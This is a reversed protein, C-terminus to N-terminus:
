GRSAHEVLLRAVRAGREFARLRRKPVDYVRRNLFADPLEPPLAARMFRVAPPVFNRPMEGLLRDAAVRFIHGMSLYDGRFRAYDCLHRYHEFWVGALARPLDEEIHTRVGSMLGGVVAKVDDGSEMQRFASVWPAEVARGAIWADLNGGYYAHFAPILRLVWDPHAVGGADILALQGETVYQYVRAFWVKRDNKLSSALARQADLIGDAAERLPALAPRPYGRSPVVRPTAGRAVEALKRLSRALQAEIVRAALSEGPLFFSFSVEWRLRTGGDVEDLTLTGRHDRTPLGRFVRYVFRHPAESAIIVEDFSRAGAATEITIRRLAGVGEFTGGDGVDLGTIPAESWLNMRAPDVLFPWVAAPPAAIHQELALRIM